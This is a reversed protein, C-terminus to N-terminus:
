NSLTKGLRHYLHNDHLLHMTDGTGPVIVLVSVLFILIFNDILFM